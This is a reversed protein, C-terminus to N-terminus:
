PPALDFETWNFESLNASLSITGESEHQHISGRSLRHAVKNIDSEDPTQLDETESDHYLSESSLSLTLM